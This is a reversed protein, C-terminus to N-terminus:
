PKPNLSSKAMIKCDYCALITWISRIQCGPTIARGAAGRARGAHRDQRALGRARGGRGGPAAAHQEHGALGADGDPHGRPVLRRKRHAGREGALHAGARGSVTDYRRVLQGM